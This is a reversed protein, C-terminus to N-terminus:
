FIPPEITAINGTGSLTLEVQIPEGVEVEERDVKAEM